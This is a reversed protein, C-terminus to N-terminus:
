WLKCYRFQCFIIRFFFGTFWGWGHIELYYKLKLKYLRFLTSFDLHLNKQKGFFIFPTPIWLVSRQNFNLNIQRLWNMVENFIEYYFSYFKKSFTIKEKILWIFNRYVKKTWKLHLSLLYLLLVWCNLVPYASVFKCYLQQLFLLYRLM